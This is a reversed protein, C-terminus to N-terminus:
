YTIYAGALNVIESNDNIAYVCYFGTKDLPFPYSFSGTAYICRRIGGPEIIGVRLIKGVPTVDGSVAIHQTNTAWFDGTSKIYETPLNWNFTGSNAAMVAIGDQDVESTYGDIPLVDIFEIGTNVYDEPNINSNDQPTTNGTLLDIDGIVQIGAEDEEVDTLEYLAQYGDALMGTSAFAASASTLSVAAAAIVGFVKSKKNANKMKSMKQMRRILENPQTGISSYLGSEKSQANMSVYYLVESYARVYDLGLYKNCVKWDCAYENWESMRDSLDKTLPNFWHIAEVIKAANLFWIDKRTYHVLEHLITVREVFESTKGEPLVIRPYLVGVTIGGCNIGEKECLLVRGPRIKAEKCIAQFHEQREKSAPLADSLWHRLAGWKEQLTEFNALFGLIWIMFVLLSVMIIVPTERFLTGSWIMIIENVILVLGLGLPLLFAIIVARLLYFLLRTYGKGELRKVAHLWIALMLSGWIHAALIAFVVDNIWKM